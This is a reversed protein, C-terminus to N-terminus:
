YFLSPPFPVDFTSTSITVDAWVGFGRGRDRGRGNFAYTSTTRRAMESTMLTWLRAALPSRRSAGRRAWFWRWDFDRQNRTESM